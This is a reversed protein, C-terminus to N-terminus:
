SRCTWGVRESAWPKGLVAPIGTGARGQDICTCISVSLTTNKENEAIHWSMKDCGCSCKSQGCSHGERTPQGATLSGPRSKKGRKDRVGPQMQM